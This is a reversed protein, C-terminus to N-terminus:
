TDKKKVRSKTVRYQRKLQREGTKGDWKKKKKLDPKRRVEETCNFKKKGQDRCFGRTKTKERAM